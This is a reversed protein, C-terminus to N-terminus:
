LFSAEHFHRLTAEGNRFGQQPTSLCGGCSDLRSLLAERLFLFGARAELREWKTVRYWKPHSTAQQELETGEVKLHSVPGESSLIM